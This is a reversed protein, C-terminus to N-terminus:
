LRHRDRYRRRANHMANSSSDFTWVFTVCRCVALISKESTFPYYKYGGSYDRKYSNESPPTVLTKPSTDAKRKGHTDPEESWPMAGLNSPPNHPDWSQSPLRIMADSDSDEERSRFRFNMLGANTLMTAHWRLDYASVTKNDPYTFALDRIRRRSEVQHGTLGTMTSLPDMTDEFFHRPELEHRFYYRYRRRMVESVIRHDAPAFYQLMSHEIRIRHDHQWIAENEAENLAPDYVVHGRQLHFRTYNARRHSLWSSFLRDIRYRHDLEYAAWASEPSNEPPLPYLDEYSNPQVTEQSAIPLFHASGTFPQVPELTAIPM